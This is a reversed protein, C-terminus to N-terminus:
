LEFDWEDDENEYDNQENQPRLCEQEEYALDLLNNITMLYYCPKEQQKQNPNRQAWLNKLDGSKLEILREKLAQGELSSLPMEHYTMVDNSEGGGFVQSVYRTADMLLEPYDQSNEFCMDNYELVERFNEISFDGYSSLKDNGCKKGDATTFMINSKGFDVKIGKESLYHIFEERNISKSLCDAVNKALEEKWSKGSYEGYKQWGKNGNEIVSLNYKECLADSKQKLEQLDKKSQQWKRGSEYNVTNLIIHNHIHKRDTHTAVVGQYGDYENILDNGIKHALEFDLGDDLSFSQIIHVYQRGSEQRFAQKTLIMQEYACEKLCDKATVLNGHETKDPNQIYNLVAKVGYPKGAKVKVM